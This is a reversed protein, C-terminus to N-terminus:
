DEQEIIGKLVEECRTTREECEGITSVVNDLFLLIAKSLNPESFVESTNKLFLYIRNQMEDDLDFYLTIEKEMIEGGKKLM